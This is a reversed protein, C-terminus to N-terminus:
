GRMTEFGRYMIESTIMPAECVNVGMAAKSSIDRAQQFKNWRNIMRSLMTFAIKKKIIKGAIEVKFEFTLM